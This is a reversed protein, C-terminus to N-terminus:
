PFTHNKIAFARLFWFSTCTFLASIRYPTFTNPKTFLYTTDTYSTLLVRQSDVLYAGAALNDQSSNGASQFRNDVFRYAQVGKPLTLWATNTEEEFFIDRGGYGVYALTYKDEQSSTSPPKVWFVQTVENDLNHEKEDGKVLYSLDDNPNLSPHFVEPRDMVYFRQDYM